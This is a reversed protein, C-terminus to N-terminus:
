WGVCVGLVHANDGGDWETGVCVKEQPSFFLSNTEPPGREEERKKEGWKKRNENQKKRVCQKRNFTWKKFHRFYQMMEVPYIM